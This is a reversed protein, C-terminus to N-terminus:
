VKNQSNTSYERNTQSTRLFTPTPTLHPVHTLIITLKEGKLILQSTRQNAPPDEGGLEGTRQIGPARNITSM